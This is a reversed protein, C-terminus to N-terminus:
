RSGSLLGLVRQRLGPRGAPVQEVEGTPAAEGLQRLRWPIVVEEFAVQVLAAAPVAIFAGALGLLSAGVLVAVFVLLPHMNLQGGEVVPTIVYGKANEVIVSAAFALAFVVWGEFAAIVLLPIRALWPGIRPIAEGLGVLVALLLAFPVGILRLAAYMAVAVIVIEILKAGLYRGLRHWMKDVVRRTAARHDPHVLQLAFDTMRGRSTVLLISIAFVSLVDLFLSFLTSPLDILRRGAQSAV